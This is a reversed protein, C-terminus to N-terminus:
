PSPDEIGLATLRERLRGLVTNVRRYVHFKSPLGLSRAIEAVPRDDEFRMRLLLREEPELSELGERLAQGLEDERVATDPSPIRSSPLRTLDLEDGVLDTLRRRAIRADDSMGEEYRGYKRRAFDVCLRGAVLVLWTTFKSRGKEDFVRLRRCQDKRLEGLIFAYRDMIDDHGKASKRAALFLLRSYEDVFAAWADDEEEPTSAVLLRSLREPLATAL